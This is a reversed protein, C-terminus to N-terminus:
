VTDRQWGQYFQIIHHRDSTISGPVSVCLRYRGDIPLDRTDVEMENSTRYSSTVGGAVRGNWVEGKESEVWVSTGTYDIEENEIGNLVSRSYGLKVNTMGGVIIDGEIVVLPKDLGQLDDADPTFDYVCSGMAVAVLIGAFVKFWRKDM